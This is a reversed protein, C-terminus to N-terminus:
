PKSVQHNVGVIQDSTVDILTVGEFVPNIAVDQGKKSALNECVRQVDKLTDLHGYGIMPSGSTPSVLQVRWGLANQEISGIEEHDATILGIYKDRLDDITM